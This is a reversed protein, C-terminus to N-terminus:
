RECLVYLPPVQLSHDSIANLINAKTNWCNTFNTSECQTAVNDRVRQSRKSQLGGSEDTWPIEWALISSHTAMEKELPGEQGQSQVYTEQKIPLNTVLSGGSFGGHQCSQTVLPLSCLTSSVIFKTVKLTPYSCLCITVRCWISGSHSM